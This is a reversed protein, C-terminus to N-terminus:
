RMDLEYGGNPGGRPINIRFTFKQSGKVARVIRTGFPIANFTHHGESGSLLVPSSKVAYGASNSTDPYIIHLVTGATLSGGKEKLTIQINPFFETPTSENFLIKPSLPIDHEPQLLSGPSYSPGSVGDAGRSQIASIFGTYPATTSEAIDLPNGYGDHIKGETVDVRLYPGRWGVGILLDSLDPETPNKLTFPTCDSPILQLEALKTSPNVGVARPFRGTDKFFCPVDETVNGVISREISEILLRSQDNRTQDVVASMSTVAMSTVIALIALVVVLELLTMGRM